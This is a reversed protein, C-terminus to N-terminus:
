SRKRMLFDVFMRETVLFKPEKQKKLEKVACEDCIRPPLKPIHPRFQIMRRCKSCHGVLNDPLLLPTTILRCVVVDIDSEAVDGAVEVTGHKFRELWYAYPTKKM